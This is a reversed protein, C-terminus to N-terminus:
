ALAQRPIWKKRAFIRIPSEIFHHSLYAVLVSLGVVTLKVAVSEGFKSAMEFLTGHWLYIGYSMVGIWAFLPQGLLSRLSNSPRLELAWIGMSAGIALVASFLAPQRYEEPACLHYLVAMICVPMFWRKPRYGLAVAMATISGYLISDARELSGVYLMRAPAEIHVLFLRWTLIALCILITIKMAEKLDFRRLILLLIPPWFIYFHEEVALSWTHGYGFTHHGSFLTAYNTMYILAPASAKIEARMGLYYFALDSVVILLVLAPMLRAFRRIYFTKLDITKSDGFEDILLNTILYGSLAFFIGVGTGGFNIDPMYFGHEILVMAIAITRVGDLWPRYGKPVFYGRIAENPLVIIEWTEEYLM